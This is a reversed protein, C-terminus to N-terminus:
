HVKNKLATEPEHCFQPFRLEWIDGGEGATFLGVLHYMCKRCNIFRCQCTMPVWHGYNRKPTVRPPTCETPKSLPIIVCVWWMDRVSYNWQGLFDETSWWDEGGQGLSQCGCIQKGDRTQRERVTMHKSDCLM